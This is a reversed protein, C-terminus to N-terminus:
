IDSKLGFKSEEDEKDNVYMKYLYDYYDNLEYQEAEMDNVYIGYLYDYDFEDMSNFQLDDFPDLYKFGGLNEDPGDSLWM